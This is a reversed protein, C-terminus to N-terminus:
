PEEPERSAATEEGGATRNYFDALSSVIRNMVAESRYYGGHSGLPTNALLGPNNVELDETVADDYLPSLAKLPYAVIDDKDYFNVWEGYPLGQERLLPPPFAIPQGFDEYRMTWLAIPSGMTFLHTLTHGQVLPSDSRRIRDRICEPLKGRQLDYIYNSAIVTGLSHSILCLPADPGARESLEQLKECFREHIDAYINGHLKTEEKSALPQYAIADGLFSIMYGRVDVWNDWRLEYPAMRAKFKEELRDTIDAWYIGEAFLRIGPCAKALRAELKAAMELHFGEKQRGIGHVFGVAINM